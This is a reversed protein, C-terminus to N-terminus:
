SEDERTQGYYAKEGHKREYHKRTLWPQLRGAEPDISLTIWAIRALEELMVSHYVAEEPTEGWTFPGHRAVLVMPVEEWSLDEFRRVILNGTETEYDGGAAEESMVETCPIDGAVFDAHTTGLIPIPREAQAWAVAYPSHTHAVGGIGSFHRYLVAHTNTDSSPQLRGDVVRGELDVIVMDEPKLEEYAVGSPKIAFAGQQRDLASANGFTYVAVGRQSLEINCRWATERLSHYPDM